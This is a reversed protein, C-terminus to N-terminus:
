SSSKKTWGIPDVEVTECTVSLDGGKTQIGLDKRLRLHLLTYVGPMLRFPAANKANIPMVKSVTTHAIPKMPSKDARRAPAIAGIITNFDSIWKSALRLTAIKRYTNWLVCDQIIRNVSGAIAGAVISVLGEISNYGITFYELRQGGAFM